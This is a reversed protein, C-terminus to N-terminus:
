LYLQFISDVMLKVDFRSRVFERGAAGLREGLQRDSAIEEIRRCLTQLDGPQALFGTEGELCVEPAGDCAYAIVPKGVALAQPLARPLGERRSLHALVDAQALLGPVSGPPVLGRFVVRGRLEPAAALAELKARLPGDGIFLLKLRPLRASLGKAAQLLEEHGKLETLRALKAVVFDDHALALKARLGADRKAELFPQLDFGSWIRTFQSARGIGARLYQQTMADAVSIFHDTFRGAYREAQRFIFNSLAGQFSGFSPGHITHVIVPVRARRAAVRGLIGAKGSHTHIIHPKAQRILNTLETAARADKWPNVPRVLSPIFSLVGPFADFQDQLSGESRVSLGSVLRVSTGPCSQLGLVTAVTNEQAGGVILRTIVHLIRLDGAMEMSERAPAKDPTQM